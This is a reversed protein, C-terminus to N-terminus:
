TQRLIRQVAEVAVARHAAVRSRDTSAGELGTLGTPSLQWLQAIADIFLLVDVPTLPASTAARVGDVKDTYVDGPAPGRITARTSGM